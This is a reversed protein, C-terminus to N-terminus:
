NEKIEVEMKKNFWNIKMLNDFTDEAAMYGNELVIIKDCFALIMPDNSIFILTWRNKKDFLYSLIKLADQKSFGQLFDNVILLRPKEAIARALAIKKITTSSFGKGCAPIHTDLGDKLANVEKSLSVADIAEMVDEITIRQIGMSINEYITGDFVDSESFYVGVNDRISNVDIDRLSLEDLTIIGEYDHLVGAIIQALTYKGSNAEGAIGVHQGAEIKFTIEKLTYKEANPYKYQVNILNLEVGKEEDVRRLIAGQEKELPIDTVQGVKDLATLLDYIVDMSIIFKEVAGIILIIVIESAVFQGLTIQKETVLLTGMILVGAVILTKFGIVFSYQNILVKFHAKRSKLYNNLLYDTKQLPLNTFGALKFPIIVRGIEQLWHVIKYKYKSEYISTILGREGTFYFLVYISLLLFFGFFVFFPHYFSLLIVGFIIQLIAASVEILLKPLGKQITLIDFFRNVLEPPYDKIIAEARFKPIRYAFEFAGKAFIRRQLIEVMSIQLIQLVGGVIVGLIVGIILLIVSSFIMGSSILNIIAQIGLPLSLSIIGITFAYVYIYGIERKETSLLRWLRRLPTFEKEDAYDDKSLNPSIMSNISSPVLFVIQNSYKEGLQAKTVLNELLAEQFHNVDFEDKELIYTYLRRRKKFIIVPIIRHHDTTHKFTIIPFDFKKLIKLLANPSAYHQMMMLQIKNSEEILKNIFSLLDNEEKLCVTKNKQFEFPNFKHHIIQAIKEIVLFTKSREM